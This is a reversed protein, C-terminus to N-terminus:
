GGVTVLPAIKQYTKPGLIGRSQLEEVSLFPAQSRADIIKQATVPGVGPLSELETETARNLDLPGTLSTASTSGGAEGFLPTAGSGAGAVAPTAEGRAPIRIKAGDALLEALNISQSTAAADVETSYGGAAAIADGVRSGSTLKYLGPDTVAGEVDVVILAGTAPSAFASSPASSPPADLGAVAATGQDDGDVTVQPQPASAALIWGATLLAVLLGVVGLIAAPLWWSSRPAPAVVPQLEPEIARWPHSFPEM